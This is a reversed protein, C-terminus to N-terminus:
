IDTTTISVMLKPLDSSTYVPCGLLLGIQGNAVDEKRTNLDMFNILETFFKGNLEGNFAANQIDGVIETSFTFSVLRKGKNLLQDVGADLNLAVQTVTENSNM